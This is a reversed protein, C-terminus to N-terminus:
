RDLLRARPLEFARLRRRTQVVARGGNVVLVLSVIEAGAVGPWPLLATVALALVCGHHV